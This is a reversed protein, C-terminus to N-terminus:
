SKIEVFVRKNKGGLQVQKKSIRILLSEIEPFLSKLKNQIRWAVNEIIKSVINMEQKVVDYVKQYDITQILEDDQAAQLFNYEIEIDVLFTNGMKNELPFFGHYAYFELEELVIKNM